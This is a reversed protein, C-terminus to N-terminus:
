NNTEELQEKAEEEGTSILEVQSNFQKQVEQLQGIHLHEEGSIDELVKITGLIKLKDINSEGLYSRITEISGNYGDIAELESKILYSIANSISMDLSTDPASTEDIKEETTQESTDVVVEGDVEVKVDDEEVDEKLPESKIKPEVIHTALFKSLQEIDQFAISMSNDLSKLIIHHGDYELLYNIEPENEIVIKLCAEFASNEKCTVYIDCIDKLRNFLDYEFKEWNITEEFSEKVAKKAIRQREEKNIYM